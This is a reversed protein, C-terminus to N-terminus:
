AAWGDAEPDDDSRLLGRFISLDMVTGIVEVANGTIDTARQAVARVRKIMGDPM